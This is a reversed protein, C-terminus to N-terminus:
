IRYDRLLGIMLLMLRELPVVGPEFVWLLEEEEEEEELGM